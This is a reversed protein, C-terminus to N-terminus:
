MDENTHRTATLSTNRGMLVAYQQLLNSESSGDYVAVCIHLMSRVVTILICLM